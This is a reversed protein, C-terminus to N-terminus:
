EENARSTYSSPPEIRHDDVWGSLQSANTLTGRFIGGILAYSIRTNVPKDYTVSAPEPAKIIFPIRFDKSPSDRTRQRFWHDSSLIVWTKNWLGAAEMDRRLIGLTKDALALNGLYGRLGPVGLFTLTETQERYIGPKHPVPLHLFTLGFNGNTVAARSADLTQQFIRLHLYRMNVPGAMSWFERRMTQLVTPARAPEAGSLPFWACYSLSSDFLREYPHYWGVAASNFGLMQAESFVSPLRTWAALKGKEPLTLLLEESSVPTARSVIQGTTLSPISLLTNGAPPYAQSASFGETAFRTFEPLRLKPPRDAFALHYDMEDFIIWLVRTQNTVPLFPALAPAVGSHQSIGLLGALFLVSRATILLALPSLCLLLILVVRAVTRHWRVLGAALVLISIMGFPNTLVAIMRYDEIHFMVSRVFDLPIILMAVLAIDAATKIFRHSSRQAWYGLTFFLLTLLLRNALMAGMTTRSVPLKNFYGYDKDFHSAFWASTLCLNALSFAILALRILSRKARPASVPAESLASDIRETDTIM